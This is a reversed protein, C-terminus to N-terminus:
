DVFEEFVALVGLTDYSDFAVMRAGRAWARLGQEVTVVIDDVMHRWGGVVVIIVM